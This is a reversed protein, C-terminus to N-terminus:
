TKISPIFFVFSYLIADPPQLHTNFITRRDFESQILNLPNSGIGVFAYQNLGRGFVIPDRQILKARIM